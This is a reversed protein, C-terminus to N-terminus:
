LESSPSAEWGRLRRHVRALDAMYDGSGKAYASSTAQTIWRRAEETNGKAEAFLGLYLAAYFEDSGGAGASRQLAAAAAAEDEGRFLQYATRMVVRPDRGVILMRRRAEDFGLTQAECLMAWISEETDNPNMEVDKRFQAAGDDFRDAYYLSLGRQWLMAKPYGASASEDFLKISEGVEAQKFAKMGLRMLTAGDAPLAGAPALMSALM